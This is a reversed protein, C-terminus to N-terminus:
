RAVGFKIKKDLIYKELGYRVAASNHVCLGGNIFFNHNNEVELNYVDEKGCEKIQVVEDV